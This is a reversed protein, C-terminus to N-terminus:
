PSYSSQLSLSHSTKNCQQTLLLYVPHLPRILLTCTTRLQFGLWTSGTPKGCTLPFDPFPNKETRSDQFKDHSFFSIKFFTLSFNIELDVTSSNALEPVRLIQTCQLFSFGSEIRSTFLFVVYTSIKTHIQNDDFNVISFM